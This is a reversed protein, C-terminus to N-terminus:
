DVKLWYDKETMGLLGLIEKQLDSLEDRYLKTV